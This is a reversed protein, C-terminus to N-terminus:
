PHPFFRHRESIDKLDSLVVAGIRERHRIGLGEQAVGRNSLLGGGRIFGKFFIGVAGGEGGAAVFPTASLWQVRKSFLVLNSFYM